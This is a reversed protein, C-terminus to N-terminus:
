FSWQIQNKIVYSDEIQTAASAGKWYDGAWLYGLGVYYSVSSFLKYTAEVDLTTGLDDHLATGKEDVYFASVAVKMSLNEMPSAGAFVQYVKGGVKVGDVEGFNAGGFRGSGGDNFMILSPNWDDGTPGGEDDTGTSTDDGQVYAYMVGAYAPGFNVKAQAYYSIGSKDWDTTGAASYDRADGLYKDLEAELYLPGFNAKVYPAVGWYKAKYATSTAADIYYAAIAGAEGGDWKYIAGLKYSDFDGDASTSAKDAENLKVVKALVGLPGFAGQYMIQEYNPSDDCFGTGWTLDVFEGMQFKGFGTTFWGYARDHAFDDGPAQGWTGDVVDFRVSAGIGEAIAFTPQLRFRHDYYASSTTTDTKLVSDRDMYWGRIRYTGKVSVDTAYSPGVFAIVLGVALLGILLKRM